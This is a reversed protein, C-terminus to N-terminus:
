LAALQMMVQVLARNCYSFKFTQVMQHFVLMKLQIFKAISYDIPRVQPVSDFHCNVLIASTQSTPNPEKTNSLRVIVNQVGHYRQIFGDAMPLYFAGSVNQVEYEM